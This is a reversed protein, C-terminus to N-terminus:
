SSMTFYMFSITDTLKKHVLVYPPDSSVLSSRLRSLTAYLFQIPDLLVAQLAMVAM